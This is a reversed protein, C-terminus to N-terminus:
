KIKSLYANFMSNFRDPNQEQLKALEEPSEEQLQEFTKQDAVPYPNVPNEKEIKLQTLSNYYDQNEEINFIRRYIYDGDMSYKKSMKSLVDKLPLRKVNYLQYFESILSKDKDLQGNRM